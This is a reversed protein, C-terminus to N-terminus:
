TDIDRLKLASCASLRRNKESMKSVKESNSLSRLKSRATYYRWKWAQLDVHNFRMVDNVHKWNESLDSWSVEKTDKKDRKKKSNKSSSQM